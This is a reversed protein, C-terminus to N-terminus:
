VDDSEEREVSGITIACPHCSIIMKTPTELEGVIDDSDCYQCIGEVAGDGWNVQNIQPNQDLQLSPGSLADHELAAIKEKLAKNSILLASALENSEDLRINRGVMLANYVSIIEKEEFTITIATHRKAQNNTTVKETVSFVNTWPRKPLNIEAAYKLGTGDKKLYSVPGRYIKM